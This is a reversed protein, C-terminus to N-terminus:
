RVHDLVKDVVAQSCTWKDQIKYCYHWATYKKILDPPFKSRFKSLNEWYLQQFRSEDIHGQFCELKTPCDHDFISCNHGVVGNRMPAILQWPFEGVNLYNIHIKPNCGAIHLMGTNVCFIQDCSDLFTPIQNIKLKTRLDVCNKLPFDTPGGLSVVTFKSSLTDVIRQWDKPTIMRNFMTYSPSVAVWPKTKSSAQNFVESKVKEVQALDLSNTFMEMNLKGTQLGDNIGCVFKLYSNCVHGHQHHEFFSWHLEIVRDTPSINPTKVIRFPILWDVHPNNAFVEQGFFEDVVLVIQAEPNALSLERIAPTLNIKDGIGTAEHAVVIIRPVSGIDQLTSM